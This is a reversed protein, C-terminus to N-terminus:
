AVTKQMPQKLNFGGGTFRPQDTRQPQIMPAGGHAIARDRDRNVVCFVANDDVHAGFHLFSLSDAYIYTLVNHCM